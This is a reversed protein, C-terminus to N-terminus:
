LPEGTGIVPLPHHGHLKDLGRGRATGRSRSAVYAASCGKPRSATFAALPEALETRPRRQHAHPAPRRDDTPRPGQRRAATPGRDRRWARGQGQRQAGPNDNRRDGAAVAGPAVRALGAQNVAGTAGVGVWVAGRWRGLLGDGPQPGAALEARGPDGGQQAQHEVSPRLPGALWLYAPTLSPSYRPSLPWSLPRRALCASRREISPMCSTLPEFGEAGGCFRLDSAQSPPDCPCSRGRLRWSAALERPGAHGPPHKRHVGRM